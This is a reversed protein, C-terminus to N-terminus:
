FYYQYSLSLDRWQGEGKILFNDTLKYTWARNTLFLLSTSTAVLGQKGLMAEARDETRKVSEQIAPNALYYAHATEECGQSFLCSLILLAEM